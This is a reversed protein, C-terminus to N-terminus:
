LMICTEASGEGDKVMRIKTGPLHIVVLSSADISAPNNSHYRWDFTPNYVEGVLANESAWDNLVAVYEEVKNGLYVHCVYVRENNPLKYMRGHNFRLNSYRDTRRLHGSKKHLSYAVEDPNGRFDFWGIIGNAEIFKKYLDPRGKGLRTDFDINQMSKWTIKM